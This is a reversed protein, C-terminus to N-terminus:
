CRGRAAAALWPRTLNLRFSSFYNAADVPQLGVTHVATRQQRQEGRGSGANARYGDMSTPHQQNISPWLFGVVEVKLARGPRDPGAAAAMFMSPAKSALSTPKMM